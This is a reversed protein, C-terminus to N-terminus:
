GDANVRAGRRVAGSVPTATSRPILNCAQSPRPDRTTKYVSVTDRQFVDV